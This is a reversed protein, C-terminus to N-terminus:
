RCVIGSDYDAEDAQLNPILLVIETGKRPASDIQLNAGLKQAQENMQLIGHHPKHQAKIM